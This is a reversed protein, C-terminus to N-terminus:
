KTEVYLMRSQLNPLRNNKPWSAWYKLSIDNSVNTAYVYVICCTRNLFLHIRNYSIKGYIYLKSLLM